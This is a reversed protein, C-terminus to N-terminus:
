CLTLCKITQSLPSDFSQACFLIFLGRHYFKLKKQPHDKYAKCFIKFSNLSASTTFISYREIQQEELSETPIEREERLFAVSTMAPIVGASM